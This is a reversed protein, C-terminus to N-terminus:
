RLLETTLFNGKLRDLLLAFLPGTQGNGLKDILRWYLGVSIIGGSRLVLPLLLGRPTTAVVLGIDLLLV